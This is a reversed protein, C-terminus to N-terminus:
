NTDVKLPVKKRKTKRARKIVVQSGDSDAIESQDLTSGESIKSMNSMKSVTDNKYKNLIIQDINPNINVSSGDHSPTNRDDNDITKKNGLFWNPQNNNNNTNKVSKSKISNPIVPPKMIKQNQTYTSKTESRQLYLQNQLDDILKQKNEVERRLQEQQLNMQQQMYENQKDKLMQLDVAQKTAAEHQKNTNQEFHTRTKQEQSKVKNRSAEERLKNALNPNSSLMESLNPISKVMTRALHFKIASGSVMFMLKLEPPIPKGSKCYKEYLEGFVDDYDGINDSMQESWGTLNFDFPNFNDNAIEVGYCVNLMLNSLWKVGNRKDRISRHLEYEYKMAKYDSNMNYNQSLKVNYQLLEGLKRLMDLKALAEEEETQFESDRGSKKQHNDGQNYKDYNDNNKDDGYSPGFASPKLPDNKANNNKNLLDDLNDDQDNDNYNDNDKSNHDNKMGSKYEPSDKSKNFLQVKDEPVMKDPNAMYQWLMDTETTPLNEINKLLDDNDNAKPELNGNLTKERLNDFSMNNNILHSNPKYDSDPDMKNYNNM